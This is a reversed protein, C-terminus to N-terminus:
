SGNCTTQLNYTIALPIGFAWYWDYIDNLLKIAKTVAVKVGTKPFVILSIREKKSLTM